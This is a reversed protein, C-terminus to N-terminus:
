FGFMYQSLTLPSCTGEITSTHLTVLREGRRIPLPLEFPGGEDKDSFTRKIQEFQKIFDGMPAILHNLHEFTDKSLQQKLLDFLRSDIAASGCKAGTYM